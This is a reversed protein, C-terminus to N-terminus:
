EEQNLQATLEEAEEKTLLEDNMVEGSRSVVEYRGGGKHQWAYNPPLDEGSEPEPEKADGELLEFDDLYKGIESKLLRRKEGSKISGRVGPLKIRGGTVKQWLPKKVREM